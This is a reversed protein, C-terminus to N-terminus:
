YKAKILYLGQPPAVGGIKKSIKPGELATKLEELTNKGRAVSWIAGMIARVMQKLFGNGSIKLVFYEPYFNNWFELGKFQDVRCEFITRTTSKVETGLCYFNQFDHTGEFIKAARQLLNLDFAFDFLTIYPSAFPSLPLRSFLYNYEKEKCDFIPHFDVNTTSAEVVRIDAPLLSNLGKMLGSPVINIPLSVKVVQELAHVGADTRGCGMTKISESKSMERLVSNLEGQISPANDQFQWGSYRTGAYQLIIKYFYIQSHDSM